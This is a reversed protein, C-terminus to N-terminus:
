MFYLRSSYWLPEKFSCGLTTGRSCLLLGSSRLFRSPSGMTLGKVMQDDNVDKRGSIPKCCCLMTLCVFAKTIM